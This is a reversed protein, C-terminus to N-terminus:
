RYYEGNGFLNMSQPEERIPSRYSLKKEINNM